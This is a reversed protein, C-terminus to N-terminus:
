MQKSLQMQQHDQLHPVPLDRAQPSFSPESGTLGTSWRPITMNPSKGPKAESRSPIHPIPQPRFGSQPRMKKPVAAHTAAFARAPLSLLRLKTRLFPFDHLQKGSHATFPQRCRGRVRDETM